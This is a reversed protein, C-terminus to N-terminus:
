LIMCFALEEVGMNSIAQPCAINPLSSKEHGFIKMPDCHGLLM